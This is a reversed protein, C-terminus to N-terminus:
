ADQKENYLKTKTFAFDLQKKINEFKLELLGKKAIILVSYGSKLKPLAEKLAERLQRALRNRVVAKKDVKTSIILGAKTINEKNQKFKLVMEPLFFTQGSKALDKIEKDKHLRNEKPLM